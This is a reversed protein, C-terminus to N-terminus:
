VPRLAAPYSGLVKVFVCRRRSARGAGAGRAARAVHGVLDLFFVYEWARGKLPRSEITSINVRNDAFPKLVRYLAGAEHPM